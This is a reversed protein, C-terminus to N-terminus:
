HVESNWVATVWNDTTCSTSSSTLMVVANIGTFSLMEQMLVSYRYYAATLIKLRDYRRKLNQLQNLLEISLLNASKGLYHLLMICIIHVVVITTNCTRETYQTSLKTSIRWHKYFSCYFLSTSPKKLVTYNNVVDRIGCVNLETTQWSINCQREYYFKWFYSLLAFNCCVM